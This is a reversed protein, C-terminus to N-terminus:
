RGVTSGKIQQNNELNIIRQEFSRKLVELIKADYSELVTLMGKAIGDGREQESGAIKERIEGMSKEVDVQKKAPALRDLDSQKPLEINQKKPKSAM